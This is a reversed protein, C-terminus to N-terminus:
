SAEFRAIVPIVIPVLLWAWGDNERLIPRMYDWARPDQLSYEAFVVGVPNTGMIANVNDSGILQFISGNRLTIKLEQEHKASVLEPPFHAMFPLGERDKGDWIVKKAQTYSPFIYYYSGVREVMKKVVYNLFTKDKGSRRHWVAIARKCGKDLASLLPLQYPRPQYRHPIILETM